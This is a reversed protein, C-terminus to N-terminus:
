KWCSCYESSITIGLMFRPPNPAFSVRFKDSLDFPPKINGMINLESTEHYQVKQWLIPNYFLNFREMYFECQLAVNDGANLVYM